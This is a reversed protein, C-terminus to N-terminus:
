FRFHADVAAGVDRKKPSTLSVGGDNSIMISANISVVTLKLGFGATYSWHPDPAEFDHWTGARIAFIPVNIEVGVAFQRSKGGPVLTKSALLDYDVAVTLASMPQVAAGARITRPLRVFAPAGELSPNTASQKVDFKPETLAAGVIGVRVTSLVNLMAGVDFTFGSTSRSNQKISDIILSGVNDQGVDFARTHNYYTRGWIYRVAAGVLLTRGYLGYAYGVRVERAELGISSVGSNNFALGTNPDNGPLIHVLDINPYVGAYAVDGVGVALGREALGLGAVGSGVAGVGPRALSGLATLAATVQAATAHVPDIATLVNVSTVFHGRDTALAAGFLDLDLKPEVGLGAPNAWLATSDNAVATQAGAMGAARPGIFPQQASLFAASLSLLVSAAFFVRAHRRTMLACMM